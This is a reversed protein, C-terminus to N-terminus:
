LLTPVGAQVEALLHAPLAALLFLWWWRAPALLLAALLVSNPPWLVSIPNPMFTLSFGIRAGVYYALGVLVAIAFVRREFRHRGFSDLDWEAYTAGPRLVPSRPADFM